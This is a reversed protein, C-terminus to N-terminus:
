IFRFSFGGLHDRASKKYNSARFSRKLKGLLKNITRFQPLESPHKGGTVVANYHCSATAL